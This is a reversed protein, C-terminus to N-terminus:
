TGYQIRPLQNWSRTNGTMRELGQQRDFTGVVVRNGVGRTGAVQMIDWWTELAPCLYVDGEGCSASSIANYSTEYKLAQM